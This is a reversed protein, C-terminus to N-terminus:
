QLIEVIAIGSILYNKNTRQEMCVYRTQRKEGKRFVMGNPLKFVAGFPIEDLHIVPESNYQALVKYLKPDSCSTAAPNILYAALAREIDEPFIGRGFLPLMLKKYCLKWEKGHPAVTNEYQKWALLHAFEHVLTILFAYSNLNHNISIRHGVRGYPPRYDGLKTSRERTIRMQIRHEIIFDAMEYCVEQPIYDGLRKALDDRTM